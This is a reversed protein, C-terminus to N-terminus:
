TVFKLEGPHSLAHPAYCQAGCNGAGILIAHIPKTM